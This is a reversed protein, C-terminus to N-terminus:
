RPQTLPNPSFPSALTFCSVKVIILPNFIFSFTCPNQFFMNPWLSVDLQNLSETDFGLNLATGVHSKPVRVVPSFCFLGLFVEYIIRHIYIYIYWQIQVHQKQITSIIFVYWQVGLRENKSYIYEIYKSDYDVAFYISKCLMFINCISCELYYLVCTSLSLLSYM